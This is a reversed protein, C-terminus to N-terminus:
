QNEGLEEEPDEVIEHSEMVALSPELLTMEKFDMAELTNMSNITTCFYGIKNTIQQVKKRGNFFGAKRNIEEIIDEVRSNIFCITRQNHLLSLIKGKKPHNFVNNRLLTVVLNIGTHTLSYDYFLKRIYKKYNPKKISYLSEILWGIILITIALLDNNELGNYFPGEYGSNWDKGYLLYHLREANEGIEEQIEAIGDPLNKLSLITSRIENLTNM